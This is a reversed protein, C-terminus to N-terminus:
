SNTKSLNQIMTELERTNSGILRTIYKGNNFFCFTPLSTVMCTDAIEDLNSHEINLKYFGVNPYKNSLNYYIGEISLCPKCWPTYFDIVILGTNKSEMLNKFEDVTKIETVM